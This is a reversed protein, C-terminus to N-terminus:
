IDLMDQMSQIRIRSFELYIHYITKIKNTFLLTGNSIFLNTNLLYIMAEKYKEIDCPFGNYIHKIM